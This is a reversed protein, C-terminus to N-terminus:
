PDFLCFYCKKGWGPGAMLPAPAASPYLTPRFPSDSLILAPSRHGQPRAPSARRGPDYEKPAGKAVAAQFKARGRQPAGEPAARRGPDFEKPARKALAARSPEELQMQLPSPRTPFGRLPVASLGAHQDLRPINVRGRKESRVDNSGRRAADSEGAGLGCFDGDAGSTTGQGTQHNEKRPVEHWCLINAPTGM